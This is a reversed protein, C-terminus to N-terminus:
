WDGIVVPHKTLNKMNVRKDSERFGKRESVGVFEKISDDSNKEKTKEIYDGLLKPEETKILDEIYTDCILQLDDLSNKYVKQNNILGKYLTVYKKQEDINPIPL